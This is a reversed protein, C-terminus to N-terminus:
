WIGGKASKNIEYMSKYYFDNDKEAQSKGVYETTPPPAPPPTPKQISSPPRPNINRKAKINDILSMWICGLNIGIIHMWENHIIGVDNFVLIVMELLAFIVCVKIM